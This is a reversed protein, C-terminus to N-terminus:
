PPFYAATELVRDFRSWSGTATEKALRDFAGMQGSLNDVANVLTAERTTPVVPSGYELRGHHSLVIHSLCQALQAPFTADREIEERVRFYGMPIEGVLKGRDTMAISGCHTDYAELKGIDHLLAGCVALDRHAGFIASLADVGQAVDLSHELLGHRYAHHNFKAAPATLFRRGTLTDRGLLRLMLAALHPEDITALLGELTAELEAAPHAPVELLLRWDVEDERAARMTTVTLQRGYRGHDACRGRIRVPSGPAVTEDLDDLSWIVGPVTGSRDGFILRLYPSGDRKECAEIERVLLVADVHSADLREGLAIQDPLPEATETM